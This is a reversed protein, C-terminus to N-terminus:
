NFLFGVFIKIIVAAKGQLAAGKLMNKEAEEALARELGENQSEIEGSSPSSQLFLDRDTLVSSPLLVNRL